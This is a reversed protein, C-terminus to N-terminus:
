RLFQYSDGQLGWSMQFLRTGGQGAKTSWSFAKLPTGIPNHVTYRHCPVPRFIMSYRSVNLKLWIYISGFITVYLCCDVTCSLTHETENWLEVSFKVICFVSVMWNMVNSYYYLIQTLQFGKLALNSLILFGRGNRETFNVKLPKLFHFRVRPRSIGRPSLM